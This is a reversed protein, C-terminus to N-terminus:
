KRVIIIEKNCRKFTLLHILEAILILSRVDFYTANNINSIWNDKKKSYCAGGIKLGRLTNIIRSNYVNFVSGCSPRTADLKDHSFALRAQINREILDSSKNDLFLEASIIIWSKNQFISHRYSFDADEKYIIKIENSEPDFYKISKIYDSISSKSGAGANMYVAGGLYCPVSFLFELGGLGVKQCTRILKQIRVSAGCEVVCGNITINNNLLKTDIIVRKLRPPLIINSGAGLIFYDKNNVRLDMILAQLEDVSEPLYYDSAVCHLRMTNSKYLDHNHIYKM